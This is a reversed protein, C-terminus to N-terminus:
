QGWNVKENSGWKNAGKQLLVVLFFIIDISVTELRERGWRRSNERTLAKLGVAKGFSSKAVSLHGRM